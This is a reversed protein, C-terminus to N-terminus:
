FKFIYSVIKHGFFLYRILLERPVSICDVLGKIARGKDPLGLQAHYHTTGTKLLSMGEPRVILTAYRVYCCLTSSKVGDAIVRNPRLNSGFM